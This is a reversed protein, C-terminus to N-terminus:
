SSEQKDSEPEKLESKRRPKKLILNLPHWDFVGWYPNDEMFKKLPKKVM